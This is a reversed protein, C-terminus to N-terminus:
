AVRPTLREGMRAEMERRVDERDEDAEEAEFMEFLAFPTAAILRLEWAERGGEGAVRAFWVADFDAVHIVADSLVDERMAEQRASVEAHTAATLLVRRVQWAHQNYTKLIEFLIELQKMNVTESQAWTDNTSDDCAPLIPM